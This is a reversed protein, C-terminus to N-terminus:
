VGAPERAATMMTYEGDAVDITVTEGDHVSGDIIGKAIRDIIETQVVRKLPRAGFVPDFGDASIQELAAPSVRLDIKRDSLRRRVDELQITAIQSVLTPFASDCFGLQPFCRM